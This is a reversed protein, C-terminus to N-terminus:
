EFCSSNLWRTYGFGSFSTSPRAYPNAYLISRTPFASWFLYSSRYPFTSRPPGGVQYSLVSWRWYGSPSGAYLDRYAYPYCSRFRYRQFDPVALYARPEWRYRLDYHWPRYSTYCRPDRQRRNLWDSALGLRCIADPTHWLSSFQTRTLLADESGRDLHQFVSPISPYLDVLLESSCDFLLSSEIYPHMGPWHGCCDVQGVFGVAAIWIQALEFHQRSIFEGNDVQVLQYQEGRQSRLQREFRKQEQEMAAIESGIMELQLQAGRVKHRIHDLEKPARLRRPIRAIRKMKEALYEHVAEVASRSAIAELTRRIMELRHRVVNPDVSFQGSEDASSELVGTIPSTEADSLYFEAIKHQQGITERIQQIQTELERQRHLALNLEDQNAHKNQLLRKLVDVTETAAQQRHSLWSFRQGLVSQNVAMSNVLSSLKRDGSADVFRTGVQAISQSDRNPGIQQDTPRDNRHARLSDRTLVMRRVLASAAAKRAKASEYNAVALRLRIKARELLDTDQASRQLVEVSQQAADVGTQLASLDLAKTTQLERALSELHQKALEASAVETPMWGVLRTTRPMYLRVCEYDPIDQDGAVSALREQCDVVARLYQQAARSRAALSTVSVQQQAVEQWSAHGNAQLQILRTLK